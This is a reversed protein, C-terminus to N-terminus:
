VDQVEAFVIRTIERTPVMTQGSAGSPHAYLEHEVIEVALHRRDLLTIDKGLNEELITGDRLHIFVLTHPAM